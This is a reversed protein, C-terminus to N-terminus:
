KLSQLSKSFYSFSSRSKQLVKMKGILLKRKILFSVRQLYIRRGRGVSEKATVRLIETAKIGYAFKVQVNKCDCSADVPKTFWVRSKFRFTKDTLAGVPCVDIVNGSFDNEIVNEIYLFKLQMEVTCLVM